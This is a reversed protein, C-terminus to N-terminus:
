WKLNLHGSFALRLLDDDHRATWLDSVRVDYTARLEPKETSCKSVDKKEEGKLVANIKGIWNTLVLM